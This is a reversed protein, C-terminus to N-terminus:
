PDRSEAREAEENEILLTFLDELSIPVPRISGTILDNPNLAREVAEAGVDTDWVLAHLKDGFVNAQIIVQLGEVAPLAALPDSVPIEILSGLNTNARLEAPEGRAILRGRYMMGLNHCHEAEDMYHTTVFITVGQMSLAFILDWFERRSM